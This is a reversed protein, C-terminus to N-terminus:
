FNRHLFFLQLINDLVGMGWGGMWGGGLSSYFHNSVLYHSMALFLDYLVIWPLDVFNLCVM